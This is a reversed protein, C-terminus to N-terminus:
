NRQRRLKTKHHKRGIEDIFTKRQNRAVKTKNFKDKHKSKVGQREIYVSVSEELNPQHERNKNHYSLDKKQTNKLAIIAEDYVKDRAAIIDILETPREEGDRIGYFIETPKLNTSSHITNNYLAVSIRLKEKMSLNTFKEENTRLIECLTSHFREVIGNVESKNSPTYYTEINLDALMGRVETSKLSPENDSVILKPIGYLSFLKTLGARINPISRSKIPILIGFKSLKDIVSIFINQTCIFIDLHYIDLPKKPIPTKAFSIKYPTREYKARKCIECLLVFKRVIKKMNPFFFKRSIVALNEEIGRHARNHTEEIIEDQEEPSKLDILLKQSIFIKFMKARSFYNKYVTQVTNIVNEPCYICNVRNPDIKTKLIRLILPVGFTVKTITHRFIKTFIQEFHESENEGRKLIIQNVFSNVPKETCPIFASDDTDASHQTADDSSIDEEPNSSQENENINVDNIIRSLGDAVVNQKGPRYKPEYSYELLAIMWKGIMSSSPDKLNLAYTLPQHDTYLIFKRGFLYPRFYKTAWFIALLEKEITSYNEESKNLTRSAFAIPKDKGIPGQSLVAGLAYKSADTTLIFPKSFDPYQLISSSSLIQKCQEFSKIFQPTHEVQEGKRLCQTLPKTIKSFDQIFKRYYGITGLFEKIQKETKPIPWNQIADIKDPNPKVGEDTIVHGLFAVEKKLFESKDLQIKLNAASLADFVKSLNVCHEELSTSFVIIDDMYVFCIKGILGALVVNMHRQFTAPANKLGFPMRTYEYHGDETSFATKIIDQPEMKIQHFGSTLDLTTFYHSRGLKDLIDSINPIPFKDDVTKANVKRYDVVIRWKQQGSADIKKPVVWIPSNWPSSSPRIIGEKLMKSIQNSVEERHCYPYRYSKQYVPLDDSTRIVHTTGNTASLPENDVHFLDQYENIVELLKKKEETNLHDLRLQDILKRYREPQFDHHNIEDSSIIEFNNLEIQMPNQLAFQQDNKSDNRITIFAKNESAKYLGSCIILKPLVEFDELFFDGSKETVPIEINLISQKPITKCIIDPYKRYMKFTQNLIQITNLKSDIKADLDQLTEYGLLGDFYKHFDFVHFIFKKTTLSPFPNFNVYENILHKGSINSVITPKKLKSAKRVRKPSLYNKNSGTDILLKLDFGEQTPLRLYPIYNRSTM